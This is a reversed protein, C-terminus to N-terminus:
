LDVVRAQEGGSRPNTLCLSPNISSPNILGGWLQASCDSQGVRKLNVNTSSDSVYMDLMLGEWLQASCDPRGVIGLKVNWTGPVFGDVQPHLLAPSVLFSKDVQPATSPDDM